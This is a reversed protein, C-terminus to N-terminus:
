YYNETLLSPPGRNQNYSSSVLFLPFVAWAREWSHVVPFGINQNIKQQFYLRYNYFTIVHVMRFVRVKYIRKFACTKDVVWVIYRM